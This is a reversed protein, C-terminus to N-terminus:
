KFCFGKHKEQKIINSNEDIFIDLRCFDLSNRHIEISNYKKTSQLNQIDIYQFIIFQRHETFNGIQVEWGIVLSDKPTPQKLPFSITASDGPHIYAQRNLDEVMELSPDQTFDGYAYSYALSYGLNKPPAHIIISPKIEGWIKIFVLSVFVLISFFKLIKM